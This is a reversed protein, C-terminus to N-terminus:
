TLKTDEISLRPAANGSTASTRASHQSNIWPSPRNHKVLQTYPQTNSLFTVDTCGECGKCGAGLLIDLLLKALSVVLSLQGWVVDLQLLTDIGQLENVLLQQGDCRLVGVFCVVVRGVDALRKGVQGLIDGLLDLEQRAGGGSGFSLSGKSSGGLCLGLRLGEVM